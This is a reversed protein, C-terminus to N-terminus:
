IMQNTNLFPLEQESDDIEIGFTKEYFCKPCEVFLNKKLMLLGSLHFLLLKARSINKVPLKYKRACINCYAFAPLGAPFDFRVITVSDFKDEFQPSDRDPYNLKQEVDERIHLCTWFIGSINHIDCVCIGM